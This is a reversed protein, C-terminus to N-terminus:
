APITTKPQENEDVFIKWKQILGKNYPADTIAIQSADADRSEIEKLRSEADDEYWHNWLRRRDNEIRSWAYHLKVMTSAKKDLGVAISYATSMATLVSM